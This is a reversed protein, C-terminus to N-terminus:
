SSRSDRARTTSTRQACSGSHPSSKESSLRRRSHLVMSASRSARALSNLTRDLEACARTDHTNHRTHAHTTHTDHQCTRARMLHVLRRDVPHALQGVDNQAAVLVHHAQLATLAQLDRELGGGRSFSHKPEWLLVRWNQGDM